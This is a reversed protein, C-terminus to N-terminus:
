TSSVVGSERRKGRARQEKKIICNCARCERRQRGGEKYLRVRTNEATYEHGRSCSTRKSYRDMHGKAAADLVNEMQTGVFLHNVNVCSRVDCKHLVFLGDPIPGRLLEWAVRHAQACRRTGNRKSGIQIRGYGIRSVNATWLICGSNPEPETKDWFREAVGSLNM